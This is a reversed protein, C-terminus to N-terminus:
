EKVFEGTLQTMLAIHEHTKVIKIKDITDSGGLALLPTYGYCEDFAIKGKGLLIKKYKNYEFYRERYNEVSMMKLFLNFNTSVVNITLYRYNLLMLFQNNEWIVIDGFATIFIPVCKDTNYYSIDLLHQYDEPNIIKLYGNMVSGFGYQKWIELLENPVKEKYFSIIRENVASHKEFNDLLNM